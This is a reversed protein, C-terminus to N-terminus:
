ILGGSARRAVTTAWRELGPRNSLRRAVEVASNAHGNRLHCEAALLAIKLQDEPLLHRHGDILDTGDTRADTSAVEQFASFVAAMSRDALAETPRAAGVGSPLEPQRGALADEMFLAISSLLPRDISLDVSASHNFRLAILGSVTSAITTSFGGLAHAAREFKERYREEPLGSDERADLALVGYLYQAIGDVYRAAGCLDQASALFADIASRTLGRVPLCQHLREDVTRISAPDAVDFLIRLETANSQAGLLRVLTTERRKSALTDALDRVDIAAGNIAISEPTNIIRWDTPTTESHIVIGTSGIARGRFVLMPRLSRHSVAQHEALAEPHPVILECSPCRYM